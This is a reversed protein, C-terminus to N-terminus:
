LPVHGPWGQGRARPPYSSGPQQLVPHQLCCSQSAWPSSSGAGVSGHRDRLKGQLLEAGTLVWPFVPVIWTRPHSAAPSGCLILFSSSHGCSWSPCPDCREGSSDWSAEVPCSVWDSPSVMAYYNSNVMLPGRGRLYVYEEWWDSM